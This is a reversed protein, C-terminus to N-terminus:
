FSAPWLPPRAGATPRRRPASRARRAVSRDGGSLTGARVAPDRQRQHRRPAPGPDRAPGRTDRTGQHVREAPAASGVAPAGGSGHRAHRRRPAAVGGPQCLRRPRGHPRLNPAAHGGRAACGRYRVSRLNGAAAARRAGANRHGRRLRANRRHGTRFDDPEVHNREARRRRHAAEFRRQDVHGAPPFDLWVSQGLTELLRLPNNSM